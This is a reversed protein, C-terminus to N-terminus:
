MGLLYILLSAAFTGAEVKNGCSWQEKALHILYINAQVKDVVSILQSAKCLHFKM